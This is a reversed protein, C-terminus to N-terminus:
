NSVHPNSEKWARWKLLITYKLYKLDGYVLNIISSVIELKEKQQIIVIPNKPDVYLNLDPIYFDPFYKHTKSNRDTWTISPPIIYNINNKEFFHVMKLEWLSDFKMDKYLISKNGRANKQKTAIYCKDSCVTPWSCTKSTTKRFALFENKCFNCCKIKTEKLSRNQTDYKPISISGDKLLKKITSSIKNKTESSHIKSNSCQRSCFILPHNKIHQKDKRWESLIEKNCKLCKM